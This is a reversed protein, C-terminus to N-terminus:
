RIISNPGRHTELEYSHVIEDSGGSRIEIVVDGKKHYLTFRDGAKANCSTVGTSGSVSVEIPAEKGEKKVVYVTKGDGERAEVFEGDIWSMLSEIGM